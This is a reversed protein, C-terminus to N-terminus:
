VTIELEALVISRCAKANRLVTANSIRITRIGQSSFYADRGIDHNQQGAEGHNSGDLEWVLKRHVFFCDFIAYNGPYFMVYQLEYDRHEVYGWDRLIEAFAIEAPTPNMYQARARQYAIAKFDATPERYTKFPNSKVRFPGKRPL